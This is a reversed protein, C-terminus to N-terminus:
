RKTAEANESRLEKKPAPEIERTLYAMVGWLARFAELRQELDFLDFWHSRQMRPNSWDPDAPPSTPLTGSTLYEMYADHITMKVLSIHHNLSSVM